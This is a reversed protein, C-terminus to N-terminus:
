HCSNMSLIVKLFNFFIIEFKVEESEHMIIDFCAASIEGVDEDSFLKILRDIFAGTKQHNRMALAKTIWTTLTLQRLKFGECTTNTSADLENEIQM